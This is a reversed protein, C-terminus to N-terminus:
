RNTQVLWKLTKDRIKEIGKMLYWFGILLILSLIILILMKIEFLHNLNTLVVVALYFMLLGELFYNFLRM